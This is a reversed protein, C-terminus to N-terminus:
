RVVAAARAHQAARERFEVAAVWGAGFAALLCPLLFALHGPEIPSSALTLIVGLCTTAALCLCSAGLWRWRDSAAAAILAVLACAFALVGWPIMWLATTLLVDFFGPLTGAAIARGLGLFGTALALYPLVFLTALLYVAIRMFSEPSARVGGGLTGKGGRYAGNRSACRQSCEEVADGGGSAWRMCDRMTM